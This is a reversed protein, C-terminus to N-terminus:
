EEMEEDPLLALDFDKETREKIHEETLQGRAIAVILNSLKSITSAINTIQSEKSM